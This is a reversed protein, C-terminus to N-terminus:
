IGPTETVLGSSLLEAQWKVSDATPMTENYSQLYATGAITRGSPYTVVFPKKRTGAAFDAALKEAKLVGSLSIGYEVVTPKDLVVRNGDNEDSTVDIATATRNVAKETVGLIEEGDWTFAVDRGVEGDAM